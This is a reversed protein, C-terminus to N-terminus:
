QQSVQLARAEIQELDRATVGHFEHRIHGTRDIVYAAPFVKPDYLRAVQGSPEHLFRVKWSPQSDVVDQVKGVESDISLAVVITNRASLRGALDDLGPLEDACHWAAWLYFVVTQGRFDSLSASGGELRRASFEPAIRRVDGRPARSRTTACATSVTAAVFLLLAISSIRM